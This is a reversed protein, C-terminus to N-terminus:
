RRYSWKRLQEESKKHNTSTSQIDRRRNVVERRGIHKVSSYYEWNKEGGGTKGHENM